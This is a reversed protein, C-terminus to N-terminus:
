EEKAIWLAQKRKVDFGSKQAEMPLIASLQRLTPPNAKSRRQSRIVGNNSSTITPINRMRELVQGSTLEEGTSLVQRIKKRLRQNRKNM